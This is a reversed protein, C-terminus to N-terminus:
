VPYLGLLFTNFLTNIQWFFVIVMFSKFISTKFRNTGVILFVYGVKGGTPLKHTYTESRSGVNKDCIWPDPGRKFM